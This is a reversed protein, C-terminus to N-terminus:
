LIVAPQLLILLSRHMLFSAKEKRKKVQLYPFSVIFIGNRERERLVQTQLHLVVVKFDLLHRYEVKNVSIIHQSM